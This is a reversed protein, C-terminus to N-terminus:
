AIRTQVALNAPHEAGGIEIQQKSCDLFSDFFHLFPFAGKFSVSFTTKPLIVGELTM